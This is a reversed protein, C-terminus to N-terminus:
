GGTVLHCVVPAFTWRRRPALPVAHSPSTTETLGYIDHIYQGFIDRFAAVTSPPISVADAM